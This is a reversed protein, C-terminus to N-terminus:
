DENLEYIEWSFEMSISEHEDILIEASLSDVPVKLLNSVHAQLIKHMEISHLTAKVQM